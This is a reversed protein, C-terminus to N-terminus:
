TELIERGIQPLNLSVVRETYPSPFVQSPMIPDFSDGQRCASSARKVGEAQARSDM